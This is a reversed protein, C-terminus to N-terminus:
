FLHEILDKISRIRFCQIGKVSAEDTGRTMPIVARSFGMRAAERVRIEMQSIGRVEGTLGVEGFVVTEKDVSRDLFSSAMAAVMGLDIGTEDVKIGGAVNLFIDHNSLHLGCIKDMVAVLLSARNPDVGIATRRPMGFNTPSVLAQIEILIPRTGEMSPVVVSGAEGAPREALFFASPNSVEVLGHARMEFVGIEHTPGYRNKIGRIVRYAHGSDGEFYLVTDVMHELVKPGAISGDKTVHGVLFIPIGSQKSQIILRGSAERVQGVSGPASSLVSSYVTQISDVVVVDPRLEQIQKLINELSIEVLVLLNKSTAGIRNGRLRIQRASEEGSIYLVKRGKDALQQFTQLLLTSKGIGPDGGVLIASGPVIGGGLVRDLEAIGIIMREKEDAEIANIPMPPESLHLDALGDRGIEPTEEEVFQHWQSCSPCKGLWKPSQHGCNQCFYITKIKKMLPDFM